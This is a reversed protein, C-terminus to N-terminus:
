WTTFQRVLIDYRYNLNVSPKGTKKEIADAMLECISRGITIGGAWEFTREEESTLTMQIGKGDGDPSEELIREGVQAFTLGRFDVSKGNLTAM